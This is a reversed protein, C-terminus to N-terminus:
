CLQAAIVVTWKVVNEDSGPFVGYGNATLGKEGVRLHYTVM